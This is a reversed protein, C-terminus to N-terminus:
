VYRTESKYQRMQKRFRVSWVFPMDFTPAPTLRLGCQELAIRQAKAVVLFPVTTPTM